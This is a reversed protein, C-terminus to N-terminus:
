LKNIVNKLDEKLMSIMVPDLSYLGSSINMNRNKTLKIIASELINRTIFDNSRIVVDSSSWKIAHSNENMHVFLSSSLQGSRVAYRHQTIRKNLEKGSQGIYFSNCNNCPIKYVINSENMPSNKILISKITHGYNFVVTVQLAKLMPIINRFGQSYPLCLINKPIEREQPTVVPSYYKKKAAVFCKELFHAPYCLKKGISNIKMVEEDMYEPSVIRLARLYMSSFISKKVNPSHGSFYHVYSLNNTPKRYISYKLDFNNRHILLDLFPLCNENETELTFKISPVQENLTVLFDDVNLDAPWVSLIDDVYRFWPIRQSTLRTVYEREFFEMYLNSLLPSLPNGMAMGFTQLYYQGNFTFKCDKICLKILALIDNSPLPLDYNDLEDSLYNLVDDIPVKTFLSCVDFSVLKVNPTIQINNLKNVLDVSNIVHSGSITGLIPSLIKTLWKSLKYTVSGVSSIIPRMPNGPKHTKVTGYMYPLSPAVSIFKNILDKNNKLIKRLGSNFTKIVEDQPNNRLKRYTTQDNLLDEMKSMYETKDLVVISNAKDAKAIKISQDKKLEKLSRQFREPFNCQQPNTTAGYVIGKAIDLNEKPIQCHKELKTLSTAISQPSPQDIIAFSLGYGVAKSVDASIEKSSLNLLGNPNSKKTWISDKILKEMKKHLHSQLSRIKKRLDNYIEDMLPQKWELPVVSRMNTRAVGLSKFASQESLKTSEIHKKLLINEFDSLPKDDFNRLRAPLLSKPLVQESLCKKLFKLRVRTCQAKVLM